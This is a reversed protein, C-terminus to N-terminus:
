IICVRVCFRQRLPRPITDACSPSVTVPFPCIPDPLTASPAPHQSRPLRAEGRYRSNEKNHEGRAKCPEPSLPRRQRFADDPSRERVATDRGGGEADAKDAKPADRKGIDDDAIGGRGIGRCAADRHGVGEALKERPFDARDLYLFCFKMHRQCPFAERDTREIRQELAPAPEGQRRNRNPVCRQRRGCGITREGKGTRSGNLRIAVCDEQGGVRQPDDFNRVLRTECREDRIPMQTEFAFLKAKGGGDCADGAFSDGNREDVHFSGIVAFCMDPPCRRFTREGKSALPERWRRDRRHEPREIEINAAAKGIAGIDIHAAPIDGNGGGGVEGIEREALCGPAGKSECSPDFRCAAEITSREFGNAHFQLAHLDGIKRQGLTERRQTNFTGDFIGLARERGIEHQAAGQGRYRARTKGIDRCTVVNRGPPSLNM